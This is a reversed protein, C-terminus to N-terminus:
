SPLLGAPGPLCRRTAVSVRGVRLVNMGNIHGPIQLLFSPRLHTLRQRTFM